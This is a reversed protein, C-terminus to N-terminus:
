TSRGTREALGDLFGALLDNTPSTHAIGSLVQEPSQVTSAGLMEGRGAEVITRLMEPTNELHFQFGYVRDGFAFAQRACTDSSALIEVSAPLECFTDYHWQFVIPTTPFAAFLPDRRAREHLDVPLWGIEPRENQVVRGGLATAVLQAGLCFGLVTAGREITEAILRKEEALWPYRAEEYVNMPGGMVVLWDFAEASPLPEEAFLRTGTVPFGNVQAWLLISGPPEIEVHQLYHIRPAKRRGM